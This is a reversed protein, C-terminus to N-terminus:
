ARIVARSPRQVVRLLAIRKWSTSVQVVKAAEDAEARSALGHGVIQVGSWTRYVNAFGVEAM